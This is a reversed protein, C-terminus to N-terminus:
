SIGARAGFQLTLFSEVGRGAGMCGGAQGAGGGFGLMAKLQAVEQRLSQIEQNQRGDVLGKQYDSGQHTSHHNGHRHCHHVCRKEKSEGTGFLFDKHAEHLKLLSGLM